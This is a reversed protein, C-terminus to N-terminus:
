DPIRRFTPRNPPKCPQWSPRSTSRRQRLPQDHGSRRTRALGPDRKSRRRSELLHVATHRFTHPSIWRGTRPDDSMGQTRLPYPAACPAGHRGRRGATRPNSWTEPRGHSACARRQPRGRLSVDGLPATTMAHAADRAGVTGGKPCLLHRYCTEAGTAPIADAIQSRGKMSSDM